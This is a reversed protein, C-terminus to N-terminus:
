RKPRPQRRHDTLFTVKGRDAKQVNLYPALEEALARAPRAKEELVYSKSVLVNHNHLFDQTRKVRGKEILDVLKEHDDLMHEYDFEARYLARILLIKRTLQEYIDVIVKNQSLKILLMHFQQGLIDAMAQNRAEVAKRQMHVHQRLTARGASSLRHSLQAIAGQELISAAEYIDLADQLSPKVVFAGRNREIVVLGEESLRALAQRIVIRSVNFLESLEREGLKTGPMLRHDLIAKNLLTAIEKSKGSM